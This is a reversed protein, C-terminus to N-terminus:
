SQDEFLTPDGPEDVAPDPLYTAQLDLLRQWRAVFEPDLDDLEASASLTGDREFLHLTKQRGRDDGSFRDDWRGTARFQEWGRATHRDLAYSPVERRRKPDKLDGMARSWAEEVARGRRTEWWKLADVLHGVLGFLHDTEPVLGAADYVAKARVVALPDDVVEAAVIWCQKAVLRQGGKGGYTLMVHSWYVAADLDALVVGKRFASLVERGDYPGLM